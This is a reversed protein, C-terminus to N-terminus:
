TEEKKRSRRLVGFAEIEDNNKKNRRIQREENKMKNNNVPEKKDNGNIKNNKKM